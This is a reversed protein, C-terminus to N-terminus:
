KGVSDNRLLRLSAPNDGKILEESRLDPHHSVPLMTVHRPLSIMSHRDGGEGTSNVEIYRPIEICDREATLHHPSSIVHNLGIAVERTFRSPSSALEQVPLMSPLEHLVREGQNGEYFRARNETMKETDCQTRHINPVLSVNDVVRKLGYVKNAGNLDPVELVSQESSINKDRTNTNFTFSTPDSPITCRISSLNIDKHPSLHFVSPSQAFVNETFDKSSVYNSPVFKSGSDRVLMPDSKSHMYYENMLQDSSATPMGMKFLQKETEMKSYGQNNLVTPITSPNRLSNQYLFRAEHEVSGEFAPSAQSQQIERPQISRRYLHQQFEEQIAMPPVLSPSAGVRNGDRCEVGVVTGQISKTDVGQSAGDDVSCNDTSEQSGVSKSGDDESCETNEPKLFM